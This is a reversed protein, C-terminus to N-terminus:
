RISLIIIVIKDKYINLKNDKFKSKNNFNWYKKINKIIKKIM